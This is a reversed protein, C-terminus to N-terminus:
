KSEKEMQRIIPSSLENTLQALGARIKSQKIIANKERLLDMTQEHPTMVWYQELAILLRHSIPQWVRANQIAWQWASIEAVLTLKSHGHPHLAHGMEHMATTYIDVADPADDTWLKPHNAIAVINEGTGTIVSYAFCRQVLSLPLGTYRNICECEWIFEDRIM